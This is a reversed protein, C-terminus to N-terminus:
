RVNAAAEMVLQFFKEVHGGISYYFALIAGGALTSIGLLSVLLSIGSIRPASALPPAAVDSKKAASVADDEAYLGSRLLSRVLAVGYIISVVASFGGFAYRNVHSLYTAYATVLAPGVLSLTWLGGAMAWLINDAIDATGLLRGSANSRFVRANHCPLASDIASAVWPLLWRIAALLAAIAATIVPFSCVAAAGPLHWPVNIHGGVIGGIMLLPFAAIFMISSIFLFVRRLTRNRRASVRGQLRFAM